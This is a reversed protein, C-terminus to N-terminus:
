GRQSIFFTQEADALLTELARQTAAAILDSTSASNVPARVAGSVQLSVFKSLDVRYREVRLVIRATSVAPSIDHFVNTEVHELIWRLRPTQSGVSQPPGSCSKLTQDIQDLISQLVRADALHLTHSGSTFATLGWPSTAEVDVPELVWDSLDVNCGSLRRKPEYLPVDSLAGLMPPNPFVRRAPTSGINVGCGMALLALALGFHKM